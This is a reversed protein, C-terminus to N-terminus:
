QKHVKISIGAEVVHGSLITDEELIRSLVFACPCLRFAEHIAARTHSVARLNESTLQDNMTVAEEYIKDQAGQNITLFHLLILITYALM